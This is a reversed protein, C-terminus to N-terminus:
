CKSFMNRIMANMCWMAKILCRKQLGFAGMDTARDQIEAACEKEYGRRCYLLVHKM